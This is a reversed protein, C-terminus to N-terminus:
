WTYKVRAYRSRAAPFKVRKLNKIFAEAFDRTIDESAVLGAEVVNGKGNVYFTLVLGQPATLEKREVKIRLKRRRKRARRIRRWCRKRAKRKKTHKCRLVAFSAKGVIAPRFKELEEKVQEATWDEVGLRGPFRLPYTFEAEGGHPREFVVQKLEGIMCQEVEFSGLSSEEIAVRKVTGDRAVRFKFTVEGSLYPQAGARQRYCAAAQVLRKRMGRQIAEQDLSGLIGSVKLKKDDDDDRKLPNVMKHPAKYTSKPEPKPKESGCGVAGVVLFLLM